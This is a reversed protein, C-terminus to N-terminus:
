NNPFFKHAKAMSWAANWLERDADAEMDMDRGLTASFAEDMIVNSDCYDGTPCVADDPDATREVTRMDAPSITARTSESFKRALKETTDM